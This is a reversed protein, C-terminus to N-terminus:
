NLLWVAWAYVAQQSVAHFFESKLSLIAQICCGSTVELRGSVLISTGCTQEEAAGACM